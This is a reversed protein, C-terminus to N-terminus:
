GGAMARNLQALLLDNNAAIMGSVDRVTLGSAFNMTINQQQSSMLQNVPRTVSRAIDEPSMAHMLGLQFGQASALGLAMFAKSPSSIGLSAKIQDLVSSAVHQATTLLSGLGALMGNAIGVVIARGLQSWDTNTFTRAIFNRINGIANGIWTTFSAWAQRIRNMADAGIITELLKMANQWIEIMYGAAEETDGRLFATFAAWILKANATATRFIDGLHLWNNRIALYVVSFALALAVLLAAIILIPVAAAALAAGIGTVATGIGALAASVGGLSVGLGSLSTVVTIITSIIKLVPGALALLGAFGIIMKQQVPSLNNMAELLRILAHVLELAIPLLNTGLTALADKWQANLIRTSNALGDSTRAFDGQADKTQELILANAALIRQQQTLPGLSDILGLELAKQRLAADNLLVGYRRIPESEGRYAAGIATIADEPNTNFFSALDAALQVNSEAFKVLDDNALGAAKGFIAFNAAADLAQTKSQGLAVAANQSWKFIDASMDGFIVQVKNQTEELDSAMKISATGVALLPLTVGLTLGNGVKNLGDAIQESSLKLSSLGSKAKNIGNTFGSTDLSIKGYASGLQIAM